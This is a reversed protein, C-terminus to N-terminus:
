PITVAKVYGIQNVLLAIIIFTLKISQNKSERLKVVNSGFELKWRIGCIYTPVEQIAGKFDEEILRFAPTTLICTDTMSCMQINNFISTRKDSTQLHKDMKRKKDNKRFQEKEDDDLSDRM